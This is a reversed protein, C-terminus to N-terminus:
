SSAAEQSLIAAPSVAVIASYRAFDSANLTIIHTIAQAMMWAVLRADHVQVGKVAHTTVLRRWVSYANPNEPLVSCIREIVRIRRDTEAVSLGYGGRSEAPRTSVNWFEAMNQSSVVFRHGAKRQQWLAKRITACNPDARNFLRLLIGTDVLYLM